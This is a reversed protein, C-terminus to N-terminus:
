KKDGFEQNKLWNEMEKIENEDELFSLSDPEKSINNNNTNMPTMKSDIQDDDFNILPKEEQKKVQVQVQESTEPKLIFSREFREYRLFVSNLDDNIRLLENIVGENSVNGILQTIRKQMEKCTEYIEKMLVLDQDNEDFQKNGRSNLENIIENLIQINSEVIGLEGNLKKWQDDSLKIAGSIRKPPAYNTPPAIHSMPSTESIKVSQDLKKCLSDEILKELNPTNVPFDVGRERLDRYFSEINKFEHDFKFMNNWLQILYLVKEQIELPPQLKPGIMSKLEHLFEKNALNVQFKRGCNQSCTELLLLIKSVMAWDKGKYSNLEKRIAKFADKANEEQINIQDCIEFFLGIRRESESLKISS